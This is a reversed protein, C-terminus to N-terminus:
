RSWDQGGVGHPSAAPAAPAAALAAPAAAAAQCVNEQHM